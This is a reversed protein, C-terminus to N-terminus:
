RVITMWGIPTLVQNSNNNQLRSNEIMQRVRQKELELQEPYRKAYEIRALQEEYAQKSRFNYVAEEKTKGPTGVFGVAFVNGSLILIASLLLILRKIM